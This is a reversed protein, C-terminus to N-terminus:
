LTIIVTWYRCYREVTDADVAELNVCGRSDLVRVSSGYGDNVFCNKVLM